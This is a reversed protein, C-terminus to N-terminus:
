EAARTFSMRCASAPPRATIGPPSIPRCSRSVTSSATCAVTSHYVGAPVELGGGLRVRAAFRGLVVDGHFESHRVRGYDFGGAVRLRSWDDCRNGQCELRAVEEPSLRRTPQGGPAFAAGEDRAAASLDCALESAALAARVQRLLNPDM